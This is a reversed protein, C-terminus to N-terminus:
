VKSSTATKMADGMLKQQKAAPPNAAPEEEEEEEDPDVFMSPRRGVVHVLRKREKRKGATKPQSKIPAQQSGGPNESPIGRKAATSASIKRIVGREKQTGYEKSVVNPKKKSTVEEPHFDEDDSESGKAKRTKKAAKPLNSPTSRSGEDFSGEPSSVASLDVNAESANQSDSADSM